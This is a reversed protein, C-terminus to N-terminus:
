ILGQIETPRKKFSLLLDWSMWSNRILTMAADIFTATSGVDTRESGTVM